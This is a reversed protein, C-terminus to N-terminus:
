GAEVAAAIEKLARVSRAVAADEDAKYDPHLFDLEMALFGAYGAEKLLRALRLNDIFGDGVPTTSFFYWDDM